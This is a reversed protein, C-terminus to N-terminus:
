RRRGAWKDVIFSNFELSRAAPTDKLVEHFFQETARIQATSFTGDPSYMAKYKKLAALLASREAPNSFDFAHVIQQPSHQNIWVLTRKMIKVMKEVQEPHNSMVDERTTLQANLFLSGLLKKVARPDHLDALYFGIGAQHMRSAYPEDGMIADVTGSDLAALQAAYSKGIPVFNVSDVAIGNRMLMYETLMQSTSRGGKTHGMVGIVHGKLDAIKRIKGKLDSRVLLSYAPVQSIPAICLVPNGSARQEALAPMGLVAFDSNKELMDQVAHPGGGFYRVELSVGEATDAGIKKALDIPMYLLNGPGPSALTIKMDAAHTTTCLSLAFFAFLLLFHGRVCPLFQFRIIGGSTNQQQPYESQIRTESKLILNYRGQSPPNLM